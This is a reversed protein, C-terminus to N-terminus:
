LFGFLVFIRLNLIEKKQLVWYQKTVAPRYNELFRHLTGM